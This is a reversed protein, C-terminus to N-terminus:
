ENLGDKLAEIMNKFGFLIGTNLDHEAVSMRWMVNDTDQMTFKEAHFSVFGAREVFNKVLKRNYDFMQRVGSKASINGEDIEILINKWHREVWAADIGTEESDLLYRVMENCISVEKGINSWKQLNTECISADGCKPTGKAETFKNRIEFPNFYTVRPSFTVKKNRANGNAASTEERACVNRRASARTCGRTEYQERQLQKKNRESTGNIGSGQSEDSQQVSFLSM